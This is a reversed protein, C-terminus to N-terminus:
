AAWVVRASGTAASVHFTGTTGTALTVDSDNLLSVEAAHLRTVASSGNFAFPNAWGSSGGDLILNEVRLDTVASSVRVGSDPQSAASTGTSICTTNEIRCHSAGTGIEIQPGADIVGAEFYCSRVVCGTAQARVKGATTSTSVSAPFYLNDLIVGSSTMDFINDNVNRTFKPRNSGTGEGVITIQGVAIVATVTQTHGALCVVIDGAASNTLAQQLTALPRARDRGRPSAADSGTGSHVYWINGSTYLPAYTVLDAGSTGGIGSTYINPSAM